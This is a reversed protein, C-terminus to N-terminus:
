LTIFRKLLASHEHSDLFSLEGHNMGPVICVQSQPFMCILRHVSSDMKRIEGSGIVIMIRAKTDKLAAPAAYDVASMAIHILSEKSLNLCDMYYREFMDKKIRYSKARMKAFWKKRMLGYFLEYALVKLPAIGRAPIISASELVAYKAIDMRRSLVEVVIQAGLSVGGIAFVKGQYNTDIYQILKQASDQISIFTTAGDEGHGDIIPTVVHYGTEMSSIIGQFSWWSLGEGHLLIITPHVRDGFEKFKMKSIYRESDRWLDATIAYLRAADKFAATRRRSFFSSFYAASWFVTNDSCRKM